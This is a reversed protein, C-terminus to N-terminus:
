SCSGRHHAKALACEAIAAILLQVRKLVEWVLQQLWSRHDEPVMAVSLMRAAISCTGQLPHESQTM